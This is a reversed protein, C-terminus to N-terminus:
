TYFENLLISSTYPPRISLWGSPLTDLQRRALLRQQEQALNLESDLPPKGKQFVVMVNNYGESDYVYSVGTGLNESM